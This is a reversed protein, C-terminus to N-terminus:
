HVEIDSGSLLGDWGTGGGDGYCVTLRGEMGGEFSWYDWFFEGEYYYGEGRIQLPKGSLVRRWNRPTLSISHTEYGWEVTITAASNPSDLGAMNFTESNVPHPHTNRGLIPVTEPAMQVAIM